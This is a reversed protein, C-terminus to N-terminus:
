AGSTAGNLVMTAKEGELRDDQTAALRDRM